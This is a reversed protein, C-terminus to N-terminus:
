SAAEKRKEHMKQIKRIDTEVVDAESEVLYDVKVFVVKGNDILCLEGKRSDDDKDDPDGGQSIVKDIEADTLPTAKKLFDRDMIDQKLLM